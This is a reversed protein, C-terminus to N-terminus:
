LPCAFFINKLTCHLFSFNGIRQFHSSSLIASKGFFTIILFHTGCCSRKACGFRLNNTVWPPSRLYWSLIIGHCSMVHCYLLEMKQKLKPWNICFNSQIDTLKHSCANDQSVPNFEWQIAVKLMNKVSMLIWICLSLSSNKISVNQNIDFSKATITFFASATQM